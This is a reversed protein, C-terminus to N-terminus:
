KTLLAREVLSVVENQTRGVNDNYAIFNTDGGTIEGCAKGVRYTASLALDDTWGVGRNSCAAQLAGYLCFRRANSSDPYIFWGDEDVAEQGQIWGKVLLDRADALIADVEPIKVDPVSPVPVEPLTIDVGVNTLVLASKSMSAQLDWHYLSLKEDSSFHYEMDLPKWDLAVWDQPTKAYTLESLKAV